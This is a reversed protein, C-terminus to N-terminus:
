DFEVIIVTSCHWINEFLVIFAGFIITKVTLKSYIQCMTRSKHRYEKM